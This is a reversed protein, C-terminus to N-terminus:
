KAEGSLIHPTIFVIVDANPAAKSTFRSARDVIPKGGEFVPVQNIFEQSSFGGLAVTQGERLVVPRVGWRRIRFHPVPSRASAGSAQELFQAPDDYGLFETLWASVTLQVTLRDALVYPFISLGPGISVQSIRPWPIAESGDRAASNTFGTVFNILDAIQIQTQRGSSTTVKAQNIGDPRVVSKWREIQRAAQSNDFYVVLPGGVPPNTRLCEAWFWNAEAAPLTIFKARLEMEVPETALAVIASELKDLDQLTARILLYGERDNFFATKPRSLDVGCRWSFEQMQEYRIPANEELGLTRRLGEQFSNADVKIIRTYLPVADKASFVVSDHDVFYALPRASVAVVADVVESLWVNVIPPVITIPISGVDAAEENCLFNVGLKDPDHKRAEDKLFRAVESLPVHDFSVSELRIRDMKDLIAQRASAPPTGTEAKVPRPSPWSRAGDQSVAPNNTTLVVPRVKAEEILNLYYLARDNRPEEALVQRLATEAEKLKGIEYFLKGDQILKIVRSSTEPRRAVERGGSNTLRGDLLPLDGLVPEKVPKGDAPANTAVPEAPVMGPETSGERLVAIEYKRTAPEVLLAWVIAGGPSITLEAQQALNTNAATTLRMQCHVGGDEARPVVTLELPVWEPDTAVWQSDAGIVVTRGGFDRTLYDVLNNTYGGVRWRFTGGSFKAFTLQDGLANPRADAVRLLQDLEAVQNSAISLPALAAAMAPLMSRLSAEDIIFFRAELKIEAYDSFRPDPWSIQEAPELEGQGDVPAPAEGMPLALAGFALVCLASALTLGSRKSGRWEMIREIRHRLATRSELIGVLGLTASSRRMVVKGVHLLTSAYSEVEGRLWVIAADDVAEERALRIRANALWVLPHWWYAIQILAQGLNVWADGRRIHIVEHLIATRLQVQSLQELLLRPMLIEPRVLGFVVPSMVREVVNLRVARRLGVAWGITDVLGQLWAPAAQCRDREQIVQRCRILLWALLTLCVVAWVVVLWGKLSVVVHPTAVIGSVPAPTAAPTASPGSKVLVSATRHITIAPSSPRVWWGLGSPFALSPPLLLKLPVLLWLAYRVAARVKRRLGIDLVLLVAILLSSQWLMPWGFALAREAWLNLSEISSNM